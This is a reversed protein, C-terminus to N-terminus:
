APTGKVLTVTEFPYIARVTGDPLIELAAQRGKISRSIGVDIVFFRGNCRSLVRGNDQVTHGVVMRKAGMIDLARQLTSCAMNEPDTAYGRYWAPGNAGLVSPVKVNGATKTQGIYARLKESAYKNVQHINRHAWEPTIGGHTFVTGSVQHSLMLHSLRGGYNGYLSFAAHREAPSAFGKEQKSVYRYDSALNMIEHNGMIQIV